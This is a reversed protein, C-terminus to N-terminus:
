SRRNCRRCYNRDCLRPLPFCGSLPPAVSFDPLPHFCAWWVWPQARVHLSFVTPWILRLLNRLSASVRKVLIEEIPIIWGIILALHNNLKRIILIIKKAIASATLTPKAQKTALSIATTESLFCLHHSLPFSKLQKLCEYSETLHYLINRSDLGFRQFLNSASM